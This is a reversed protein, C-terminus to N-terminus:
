AEIVGGVYTGPGAPLSAQAYVLCGFKSLVIMAVSIRLFFEM